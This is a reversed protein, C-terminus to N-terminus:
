WRAGAVSTTTQYRSIFAEYTAVRKRWISVYSKAPARPRGVIVRQDVPARRAAADQHRAPTLGTFGATLTGVDVLSDPGIREVATRRGSKHRHPPVRGRVASTSSRSQDVLQRPRQDSPRVSASSHRRDVMVVAPWRSRGRTKDDRDNVVSQTTYCVDNDVDCIRTVTSSAIALRRRELLPSHAADVETTPVVAHTTPSTAGSALTITPSASVINSNWACALSTWQVDTGVSTDVTSTKNRIRTATARRRESHGLGFACTKETCEAINPTTSSTVDHDCTVTRSSTVASSEKRDSFHLLLGSGEPRLSQFSTSQVDKDITECLRTVAAGDTVLNSHELRPLCSTQVDVTRVGTDLKPPQADSIRTFTSSATVLNGSDLQGPHVTQSEASHLHGSSSPTQSAADCFKTVTPSATVSITRRTPPTLYESSSSSWDVLMSDPSTMEARLNWAVDDTLTAPVDVACGPSEDKREMRDGNSALLQDDVAAAPSLTSTPDFNAASLYCSRHSVALDDIDAAAAHFSAPARTASVAAHNTVSQQRDLLCTVAHKARLPIDVRPSYCVQDGDATVDDGGDENAVSNQKRNRVIRASLPLERVPSQPATRVAPDSGCRRMRVRVRDVAPSRVAARTRGSDLRCRPTAAELSRLDLKTIPTLISDVPKCRPSQNRLASTIEQDAVSLSTSICDSQDDAVVIIYTTKDDDRIQPAGQTPEEASPCVSLSSSSSRADDHAASMPLQTSKIGDYVVEVSKRDELVSSWDRSTDDAMEELITNFPLFAHDVGPQRDVRSAEVEAYSLDHRPYFFYTPATADYSRAVPFWFPTRAANVRRQWRGAAGSPVNEQRRPRGSWRGGTSVACQWPPRTSCHSTSFSAEDCDIRRSASLLCHTFTMDHRPYFYVYTSWSTASFPPVEVDDIDRSLSTMTPASSTASDDSDSSAKSRCSTRPTPKDVEVNDFAVKCLADSSSPSVPERFDMEAAAAILTTSRFATPLPSVTTGSDSRRRLIQKTDSVTRRRITEVSQGCKWSM